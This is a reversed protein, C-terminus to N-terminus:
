LLKKFFYIFRFSILYAFFFTYNIEFLTFYLLTSYISFTEYGNVFIGTGLRFVLSLSAGLVDLFKDPRVGFRKPEPPKFNPPPSFLSSSSSSLGQNENEKTGVSTSSNESPRSTARVSMSAKPTKTSSIQRLFPTSSLNLAAAM